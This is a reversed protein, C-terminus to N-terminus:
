SRTNLFTFPVVKHVIGACLTNLLFTVNNPEIVVSESTEVSKKDAPPFLKSVLECGNTRTSDFATARLESSTYLLQQQQLSPASLASWTFTVIPKNVIMLSKLSTLRETSDFPKQIGFSHSSTELVLGHSTNSLISKGISINAGGCFFSNKAPILPM